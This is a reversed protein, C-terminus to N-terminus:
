IQLPTVKALFDALLVLTIGVNVLEEDILKRPFWSSEISRVVSAGCKPGLRLSLRLPSSPNPGLVGDWPKECVNEIQPRRKAFGWM